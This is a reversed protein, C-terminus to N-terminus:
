FAVPGAACRTGPRKTKSARFTRASGSVEPSRRMFVVRAARLSGGEKGEVGLALAKFPGSRVVVTEPEALSIMPQIGIRGVREMEGTHYTLGPIPNSPRHNPIKTVTIHVMPRILGGVPMVTNTMWACCGSIGTARM